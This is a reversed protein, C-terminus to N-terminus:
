NAGCWDACVKFDGYYFYQPARTGASYGGNTGFRLATLYQDAMPVNPSSALSGGGSGWAFISNKDGVVAGSPDAIRIDLSYTTGSVRTFKWEMRYTVNKLLTGKNADHGIAFINKPEPSASTFVWPYAGSADNGFKMQMMQANEPTSGGNPFSEFPHTAGFSGAFNENENRFYIRFAVSKGVAPVAWRGKTYLWDAATYGGMDKGMQVRVLNAVGNPFSHGAAPVLGIVNQYTQRTWKGGDLLDGSAWNSAFLVGTAPKTTDVPPPKVTDVPPVPKTTDRYVTDVRVVTVTKTYYLRTNKAYVAVSDVKTSDQGAVAGVCGLVLAVLM